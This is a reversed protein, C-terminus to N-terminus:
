VLTAHDNHRSEEQSSNRIDIPPKGDILMFIAECRDRGEINANEIRELIELESRSRDEAGWRDEKEKELIIDDVINMATLIESESTQLGSLAKTGLIVQRPFRVLALMLKEAQAWPAQWGEKEMLDFQVRSPTVQALLREDLASQIRSSLDDTVKRLTQLSVYGGGGLRESVKILDEEIQNKKGEVFSRANEGVLWLLTNKAEENKREIEKKFISIVQDPMWYLGKELPLGLKKIITQTGKRYSEIKKLEENTFVSIRFSQRQVVTGDRYEAELGLLRPSVPIELPQAMSSQAITVQKGKELLRNMRDVLPDPLPIPILIEPDDPEEEPDPNVVAAPTNICRDCFEKWLDAAEPSGPAPILSPIDATAETLPAAQKWTENFWHNWRDFLAIESKFAMNVQTRDAGDIGFNPTPGFLFVPATRDVPVATLCNAPASTGTSIKPLIRFIVKGAAQTQLDLLRTLHHSRTPCGAYVALIIRAVLESRQKLFAELRTVGREDIGSVIGLISATNELAHEFPIAPGHHAQGMLEAVSPWVYPLSFKQNTMQDPLEHRTQTM